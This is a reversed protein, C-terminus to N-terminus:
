FWVAASADSSTGWLMKSQVTQELSGQLVTVRWRSWEMGNICYPNKAQFPINIYTM